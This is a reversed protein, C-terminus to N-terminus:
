IQTQLFSSISSSKSTPKARKLRLIYCKGRVGGVGNLNGTIAGALLGGFAGSVQSATYFFALRKSIEYPKYWCSLTFVVGPSYYFM